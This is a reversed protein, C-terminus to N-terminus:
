KVADSPSMFGVDGLPTNLGWDRHILVGNVIYLKRVPYETAGGSGDGIVVVASKQRQTGDDVRFYAPDASDAIAQMVQLVDGYDSIREDRFYCLGEMAGLGVAAVAAGSASVAGAATSGVAGGIEGLTSATSGLMSAGTAANTLTFAGAARNAFAGAADRASSVGSRLLESPRYDCVRAEASSVTVGALAPLALIFVVARNM